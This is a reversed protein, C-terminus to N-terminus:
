GVLQQLEALTDRTAFWGLTGDDRVIYLMWAKKDKTPKFYFEM